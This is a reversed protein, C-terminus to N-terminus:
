SPGGTDTPAPCRPTAETLGLQSLRVRMAPRSVDYRKALKAIDQIGDAWDARLVVRPMLLAGAFRDCIRETREHNSYGATAPYLGGAVEDAIGDDLIHKLEHALSFRQRVGPEDSRLVILWGFGTNTALGSTPLSESRSITLWPLNALDEERLQPGLVTLQARLRVAQREALQEAESHRLPRKPVMARLQSLLGSPRQEPAIIGLAALQDGAASM